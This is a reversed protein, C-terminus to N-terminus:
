RSHFEFRTSHSSEGCASLPLFPLRAPPRSYRGRNEGDRNADAGAQEEEEDTHAVGQANVDNPESELRRLWRVGHSHLGFDAASDELTHNIIYASDRLIELSGKKV